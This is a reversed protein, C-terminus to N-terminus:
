LHEKFHQQARSYQLCYEWDEHYYKRITELKKPAILLQQGTWQFPNLQAIFAVTHLLLIRFKYYLRDLIKSGSGLPKYPYSRNFNRLLRLQKDSFAKNVITNIQTDEVFEIGLFDTLQRVLLKPNTRLDDFLLILPKNDFHKEVLEIKKRYYFKEKTCFAKNSEIDFFEEFSMRGLKRIHYRYKSAIWSDQRRLVLIIRAQPFLDSIDIIRKELSDDFERSFLHKEHIDTIFNKKYDWFHRKSHYKVNKLRPFIIKQLYTSGTKSPGLHFFITLDQM